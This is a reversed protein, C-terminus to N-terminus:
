QPSENLKTPDRTEAEDPEDLDPTAPTRRHKKIMSRVVVGVALICLALAFLGSWAMMSKHPGIPEYDYEITQHQIAHTIPLSPQIQHPM